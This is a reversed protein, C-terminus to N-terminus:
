RSDARLGALLVEAARRPTEAMEALPSTSRPLRVHRRDHAIAEAVAAAVDQPDARALLRLKRMRSFAQRVPRYETVRDLMETRVPGLEVLTSGIQTGRLEARLCASFQTLGAKSSSYMALGPVVVVGALSSINVIHGKGRALMGPLVQRCLYVPTLLNLRFLREVAEDTAEVLPRAIEVGANNVLVDIAGRESEVRAVLDCLAIPDSLDM